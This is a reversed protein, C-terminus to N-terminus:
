LYKLNASPAEHEELRLRIMEEVETCTTAFVEQLIEIATQLELARRDSRNSPFAQRVMRPRRRLPWIMQAFIEAM